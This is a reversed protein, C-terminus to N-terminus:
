RTSGRRGPEGSWRASVQIAQEVLSWLINERFYYPWLLGTRAGRGLMRLALIERLEDSLPGRSIRLGASRFHDQQFYEFVVSFFIEHDRRELIWAAVPLFLERGFVRRSFEAQKEAKRAVHDRTKAM